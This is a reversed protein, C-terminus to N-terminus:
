KRVVSLTDKIQQVHATIHFNPQLLGFGFRYYSGKNAVFGEPLCGVYALTEEVARRLAELMLGVSPYAKVTAQVQADVNSGFNDAVREYGDILDTVFIQNYREGHILHAVIELASWEKPDPRKMAEEDSVGEFCKEVEALGAEYLERANKALEAPRFSVDPMPRRSLEMTVTKKEPGRYFVVEINDGGKKGAIAEPLSNADSRISHGAMEILVDDKQLGAKQAGMGDVLGDLRLGEHLPVGLAKAQEETFDGPVIGLMPRNAIRLDIGTELVSKLNELSEDWNDRFTEAKKSWSPDDPVEHDMRVITGGDKEILSVAVETPAPDISSYWRFKIKKNEDLELYHGSSYFEGRWWLYMRGRPHPEVTAVDCLWERLSTANTFARYVAKPPADVFIESSVTAM